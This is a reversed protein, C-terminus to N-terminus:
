EYYLEKTKANYVRNSSTADITVIGTTKKPYAIVYYTHLSSDKSKVEVRVYDTEGIEKVKREVDKKRRYYRRKKKLKGVRM